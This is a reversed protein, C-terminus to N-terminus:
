FLTLLLFIKVLNQFELHFRSMGSCQLGGPTCSHNDATVNCAKLSKSGVPCQVQSVAGLEASKPGFHEVARVGRGCRQEGCVADQAGRDRLADACVPLWRGEYHMEVNGSCKYSSATIRTKISGADSCPFPCLYYFIIHISFVSSPFTM